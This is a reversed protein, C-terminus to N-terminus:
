RYEGASMAWIGRLILAGPRRLCTSSSAFRPRFIVVPQIYSAFQHGLSQTLNSFQFSAARVSTMALLFRRLSASGMAPSLLM